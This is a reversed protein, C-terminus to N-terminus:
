NVNVTYVPRIHGQRGSVVNTIIDYKPYYFDIIGEVKSLGTSAAYISNGGNTIQVSNGSVVNWSKTVTSFQSKPTVTPTQTQGVNMTSAIGITMPDMEVRSVEVLCFAYKNYKSATILTIGNAVPTIVGTSSVTAVAPNSSLYSATATVDTEVINKDVAHTNLAFSGSVTDFRVYGANTFWVDRPINATDNVNVALSAEEGMYLVGVVVAGDYNATIIGSSSVSATDPNRSTWTASSSSIIATTGDLNVRKLVPSYTSGKNMSINPVTIMISKFTNGPVVEVIQTGTLGVSSARITTTGVSVATVEGSGNVTAISPNDSSWSISKGETVEFNEATMIDPDLKKTQTPYMKLNATEGKALDIHHATASPAVPRIMGLSARTGYYFVYTRPLSADVTLSNTTISYETDSIVEYVTGNIPFKIVETTGGGPLTVAVFRNDASAFHNNFNYVHVNADAAIGRLLAPTLLNIDDAFYSLWTTKNSKIVTTKGNPSSALTTDNPNAIAFMHPPNSNTFSSFLNSLPAETLNGSGDKSALRLDLWTIDQLATYSASKTSIDIIGPFNIWVFAKNDHRLSRIAARQDSTLAFSNAFVYMKYNNAKGAVVDDLSLVDFPIGMKGMNTRFSILKNNISSEAPTQYFQSKEDVVLAVEMWNQFPKSNAAEALSNMLAVQHILGPTNVHGQGTNDYWWHGFGKTLGAMFDKWLIAKSENENTAFKIAADISGPPPTNVHTQTDDEGLWLKGHNRTSDAFGHWGTYGDLQRTNYTFPSAFFDVYPSDLLYSFALHGSINNFQANEFTYGYPAGCIRKNNTEDKIASCLYNISKAVILSDYEMFDIVRQNVAPDLFPGSTVKAPIVVTDLTANADNWAM